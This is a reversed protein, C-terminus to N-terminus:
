RRSLGDFMMQRPRIGLKSPFFASGDRTCAVTTATASQVRSCASSIASLCTGFM